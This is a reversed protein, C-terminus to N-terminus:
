CWTKVMIEFLIILFKFLIACVLLWQSYKLSTEIKKSHAVNEIFAESKKKVLSELFKDKDVSDLQDSIRATYKFKEPSFGILAFIASLSVLLIILINPRRSNYLTVLFVLDSVLIWNLKNYILDLSQQQYKHLETIENYIIKFNDDKM